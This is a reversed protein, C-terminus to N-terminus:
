VAATQHYELRLELKTEKLESFTKLIITFNEIETSDFFSMVSKTLQDIELTVQLLHHCNLPEEKRQRIQGELIMNLRSIPM